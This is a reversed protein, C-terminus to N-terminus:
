FKSSQTNKQNKMNTKKNLSREHPSSPINKLSTELHARLFNVLEANGSQKAFEIVSQGSNSKRRVNAGFIILEQVVELHGSKAAVHIPSVDGGLSILNIDAKFHILLKMIELHNSAAAIHIAAMGYIDCINVKANNELLTKVIKLFGKSTAVMLPTKQTNDYLNLNANHKILTRVVDLNNRASSVHLPNGIPNVLKNIESGHKILHEIIEIPTNYKAWFHLAPIGQINANSIYIEPHTLLLQTIEFQENKVALMLPTTNQTRTGLNINIDKIDLLFQVMTINKAEVAQFLPTGFGESVYNIDAGHELLTKVIEVSGRIVACHLATRPDFWITNVTANHKLLIQVIPYNGRLSALMLPTINHNLNGLNVNAGNKILHEVMDLRDKGVAFALPTGALSNQNINEGLTYLFYDFVEKDAYAASLYFATFGRPMFYNKDAGHEILCKVLELKQATVAHFLAPAKSTLYSLSFINLCCIHNLNIGYSLWTLIDVCSTGPLCPLLPFSNQFDLIDMEHINKLNINVYSYDKLYDSLVACCIPCNSSPKQELFKYICSICFEHNCKTKMGFAIHKCCVTCYFKEDKELTNDKIKHITAKIQNPTPKKKMGCVISFCILCCVLITRLFFKM